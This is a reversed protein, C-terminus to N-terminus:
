QGSSAESTPNGLPRNGPLLYPLQEWLVFPVRQFQNNWLQRFTVEKERPIVGGVYQVGLGTSWVLCGLSLDDACQSASGAEVFCFAVGTWPCFGAHVRSFVGARISGRGVMRAVRRDGLGSGSVDGHLCYGGSALTAFSSCVGGRLSFCRRGSLCGAGGRFWCMSLTPSKYWLVGEASDLLPGALWGGHVARWVALQPLFGILVGFIMLGGGSFKWCWHLHTAEWEALHWTRLCFAVLLLIFVANDLRTALALGATLGILYFHHLGPAIRWREYEWLLLACLFFSCAHSMSPNLYMYFVLPSGLWVACVGVFAEHPGLRWSVLRLVLLLGVIGYLTSGLCVSWVYPPSYGDAPGEGVLAVLHGTLFFPSWLIASGIGLANGPRQTRPDDKIPLTYEGTSRFHEFENRLDLDGDLWFSRLYAYNRVGDNGHIWPMFLFPILLFAGLAVLGTVVRRARARLVTEYPNALRDLIDLFDYYDM